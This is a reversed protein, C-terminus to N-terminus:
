LANYFSSGRQAREIIGPAPTFRPGCTEELRKLSSWIQSAGLTEAYKILGGHFPPFGTGMVTGLDIQKAAEPGPAGAVGEDLCKVAENILNLILRDQIEKADGSKDMRVSLIGQVESSVSPKGDEPYDYFGVRSKKGLRNAAVMSSVYDPAAMREGYGNRMTEGVHAAVDLGVEDLLRFPGMPMGFDTAAKDVADIRYGSELLFAAENLYPVLIRNVLFGPVDHVVIPFKGLKNTLAAVTAIARTSTKEGQVIEVLPMKEVPNFFHMGIVREPNHIATAMESVSLSSTNTAIIADDPIQSAVESLVKKKVDMREVIAEIAITANGTNPSNRVTTEVRNLLFSRETESL